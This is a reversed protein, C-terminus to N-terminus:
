KYVLIQMESDSYVYLGLVRKYPVPYEEFDFFNWRFNSICKDGIQIDLQYFKNGRTFDWNKGVVGFLLGIFFSIISTIIIM